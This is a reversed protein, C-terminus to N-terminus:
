YKEAVSKNYVTNLYSEVRPDKKLRHFNKVLYDGRLIGGCYGLIKYDQRSEDGVTLLICTPM